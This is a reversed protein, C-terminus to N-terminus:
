YEECLTTIQQHLKCCLGCYFPSESQQKDYYKLKELFWIKATNEGTFVWSMQISQISFRINGHSQSINHVRSDGLEGFRHPIHGPNRGLIATQSSERSVGTMVLHRNDSLLVVHRVLVRKLGFVNEKM